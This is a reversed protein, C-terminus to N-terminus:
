EGATAESSYRREVVGDLREEREEAKVAGGIPAQAIPLSPRRAVQEPRRAQSAFGRGFEPGDCNGARAM